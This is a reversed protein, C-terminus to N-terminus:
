DEWINWVNERVEFETDNVVPVDEAKFSVAIVKQEVVSYLTTAPAIYNKKM